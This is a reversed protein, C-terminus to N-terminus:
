FGRGHIVLCDRRRCHIIQAATPTRLGICSCREGSRFYRKAAGILLSVGKTLRLRPAPARRVQDQGRRRRWSRRPCHQRVPRKRISKPQFVGPTDGSSKLTLHDLPNASFNSRRSRCCAQGREPATRRQLHQLRASPGLPDLSSKWPEMRSVENSYIDSESTPILSAM